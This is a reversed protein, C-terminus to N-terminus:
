ITIMWINRLFLVVYLIMVLIKKVKINVQLISKLKKIDKIEEYIRDEKAAGFRMFDGFILVPPSHIIKEEPLTLVPTGFSRQCIDRMLFYFYTKDEDNILRDHFVRLNEHYFLRCIFTLHDCSKLYIPHGRFVGVIYSM